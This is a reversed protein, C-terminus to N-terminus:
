RTLAHQWARERANWWAQKPTDGCALWGDYAAGYDPHQYINYEHVGDGRRRHRMCANPFIARVDRVADETRRPDPASM